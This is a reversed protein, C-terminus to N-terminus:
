GAFVVLRGLSDRLEGTCNELGFIMSLVLRRDFGGKEYACSMSKGELLSRMGETENDDLKLVTKKLICGKSSSYAFTGGDESLVVEMDECLDAAAIFCDADDCTNTAASGAQNGAVPELPIQSRDASPATCGALLVLMLSSLALLLIFPQLSM